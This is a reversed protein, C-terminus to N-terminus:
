KPAQKALQDILAKPIMLSLVVDAESTGTKVQDLLQAIQGGDAGLFSKGLTVLSKLSGELLTADEKSNTSLNAKIAISQDSTLDAIGFIVKVAALQKFLDGQSDLLERLDRPIVLALRLLSSPNTLKLGAVHTASAGKKAGAVNALAAQVGENDGVAFRKAGLSAFFLEATQAPAAAVSATTTLKYVQGGPVTSEFKWNKKVAAVAMIKPDLDIGETILTIGRVSLGALRIGGVAATVKAPDIGAAPFFEEIDSVIAGSGGLDLSKLTPLLEKFARPIDVIAVLDSEPLLALLDDVSAVGASSRGAASVATRASGILMSLVILWVFYKRM